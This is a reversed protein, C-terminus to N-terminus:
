EHICFVDIEKGNDIMSIEVSELEELVVQFENNSLANGYTKNYLTFLEETKM